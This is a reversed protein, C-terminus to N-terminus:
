NNTRSLLTELRAAWTHQSRLRDALRAARKRCNDPARRFASVQDVLEGRSGFTVVDEVSNVFPRLGGDARNGHGRIFAPLGFGMADLAEPRMRGATDIVVLADFGALISCAETATEWPRIRRESPLGDGAALDSCLSYDIGAADFAECYTRCVIAVGLVQRIRLVLNRIVENETIEIGLKRQAAELTAKADDECWSDCSQAIIQTAAAWIRLHSDLHLGVSAASPDPHDAIVLVRHPAESRCHTPLTRAAPPFHIVRGAALGGSIAQDRQAESPVTLFTSGGIRGIWDAALSLDHACLVVHTADPLRYALAAPTIGLLLITEPRAAALAREIAQPHIMAPGDPVFRLVHKGLGAAAEELARSWRLIVPDVLNTVIAFGGIARPDFPQATHQARGAAIVVASAALQGTLASSHSADYWPRSLLREPILFGTNEILFQEFERWPEAGCAIVLRRSSLAESFDRLRLSLSLSASDAEVVFVAQHPRLRELLLRVEEGQGFGSLLDNGDGPEFADILAPSSVTAMSTRGLWRWVGDEGTWGFTPTGDRAAVPQLGAPTAALRVCEAVRPCVRDLVTLNASFYDTISSGEVAHSM